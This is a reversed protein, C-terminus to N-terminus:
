KAAQFDQWCMEHWTQSFNLFTKLVSNTDHKVIQNEGLAGVNCGRSKNALGLSKFAEWLDIPKGACKKLKIKKLKKRKKAILNQVNYKGTKYTKKIDHLRSKKYIQPTQRANFNKRFDKYWVM